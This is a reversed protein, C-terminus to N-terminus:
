TDKCGHKCQVAVKPIISARGLLNSREQVELLPRDDADDDEEEDVELSYRDATYPISPSVSIFLFFSLYLSCTQGRRSRSYLGTMQMMMKM